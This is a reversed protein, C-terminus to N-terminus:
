LGCKSTLVGDTLVFKIAGGLRRRNAAEKIDKSSIRECGHLNVETLDFCNAALDTIAEALEERQITERCIGSGGLNVHTLGHCNAALDKIAADTIKKCWTLNM